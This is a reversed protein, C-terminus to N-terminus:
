VFFIFENLRNLGNKPRNAQGIDDPVIDPSQKEHEDETMNCRFRNNSPIM